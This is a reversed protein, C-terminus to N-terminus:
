KQCGQDSCGYFFSDLLLSRCNSKDEKEKEQKGLLDNPTLQKGFASM